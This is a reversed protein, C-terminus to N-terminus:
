AGGHAALAARLQADRGACARGEIVVYAEDAHRVCDHYVDRIAANFPLDHVEVVTWDAEQEIAKTWSALDDHFETYAYGLHATAESFPYLVYFWGADAVFVNQAGQVFRAAERVPDRANAMPALDRYSAVPVGAAPAAVHAAAGGALALPALLLLATGAPAWRWATAPAAQRARRAGEDLALFAAVAALASSAVFYWISVGRGLGASYLLYFAPFALGLASWTRTRPWLLGLLLPPLLWASLLAHDLDAWAMPTTAWGPMRAGLVTLSFLLPAAALLGAALYATCARDLRLPWLGAARSRVAKWLSWAGVAALAVVGTEKTWVAAALLLGAVLPRGKAHALLGALVFCAMLSDPFVRSGWVAMWPHLALVAGAAGAAMPRAGLQRLLAWALVPLLSSLLAHEVRFGTFGLQAGPALLLFFAPRAAFLQSPLLDAHYINAPPAGLHRAIYYHAAEDGYLPSGALWLRLAAAAAFLLAPVAWSRRWWAM